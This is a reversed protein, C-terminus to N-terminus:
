RAKWYAVMDIDGMSEMPLTGEPIYKNLKFEVIGLNHSHIEALTPALRAHVSLPLANSPASAAYMRDS